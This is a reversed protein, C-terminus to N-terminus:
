DLITIEASSRAEELFEDTDSEIKSDTLERELEKYVEEVTPVIRGPSQRRFRPVYM